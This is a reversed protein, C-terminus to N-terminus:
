QNWGLFEMIMASLIFLLVISCMVWSIFEFVLVGALHKELFRYIKSNKNM